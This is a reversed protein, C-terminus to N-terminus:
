TSCLRASQRWLNLDTDDRELAEAFSTLATSAREAIEASLGPTSDSEQAANQIIARLSDLVFQGHNKYALYITQLLTSSTSDNIDYDGLPEAGDANGVYDSTETLELETAARKYDSLSEPYKFIESSLLADYAEAAQAYFAPGQSHLKLANQYLKLAEEIQIEKTDDVEEEVAEAPEINLAVWTSM